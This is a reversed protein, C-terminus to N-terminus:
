KRSLYNYDNLLLELFIDDDMDPNLDLATKIKNAISSVYQDINSKRHRTVVNNIINIDNDSLKMVQPFSVRYNEEKIERFITDNLDYPVRKYVMVTGAALDGLRQNYKTSLFLVFSLIGTIVLFVGMFMENSVLFIFSWILGFDLFRTLWRILIQPTSAERGDLSVVKIGLTMKGISQGNNLLEFIVHYALLPTIILFEDLGFTSANQFLNNFIKAMGWVYLILIIFDIIWAFFRIHFPATDFNLNINFSTNVQLLSV